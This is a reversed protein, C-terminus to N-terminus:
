EKGFLRNSFALFGCSRSDCGNGNRPVLNQTRSQLLGASTRQLSSPLIGERGLLVPIDTWNLSSNLIPKAIDRDQPSIGDKARHLHDALSMLLWLVALTAATVHHSWQWQREWM